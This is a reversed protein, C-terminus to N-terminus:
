NDISGNGLVLGELQTVQLEQQPVLYSEVQKGYACVLLKWFGSLSRDCQRPLTCWKM